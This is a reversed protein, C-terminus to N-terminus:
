TLVDMQMVLLLARWRLFLILNIIVHIMICIDSKVCRRNISLSVPPVIVSVSVTGM